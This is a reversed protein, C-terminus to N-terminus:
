EELTLGYAFAKAIPLTHCVARLQIRGQNGCGCMTVVSSGKRALYRAAIATAAGTRQITIEMSDMVALPLGNSASALIVMGQINPMNYRERNRFFGGNAKLAFHPEPVLLGGAKIHFEGDPASVHMLAPELSRGEAHARFADEVVQVYEEFTLLGAIQSRTLILM